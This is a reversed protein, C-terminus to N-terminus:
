GAHVSVREKTRIWELRPAVLAPRYAKSSQLRNEAGDGERTATEGYVRFSVRNNSDAVAVVEGQEDVIEIQVEATYVREALLHAPIRVHSNVVGPEDLVWRGSQRSRLVLLGDAILNLVLRIRLNPEVVRFTAAVFFEEFVRPADIESGDDATLRVSTMRVAGLDKGGGGELLGDEVAAEYRSVVDETDGADVIEGQQLRIVRKCLRRIARMDHSVFLVTVGEAGAQGVRQLCREQYEADGVALIEDALIVNPRMNIALSFALRLYMGSSFRGVPNDAFETLGAFELIQDFNQDVEAQPIDYLAANLYINERASLDRQFGQGIGLLSVVRGRLVARGATPLTVKGLVKLLTTKGAGNHGIVGLITGPEAEFSVNKLAWVDRTPTQFLSQIRAKDFVRQLGPRDPPRKRRTEIRYVKTLQEVTVAKM